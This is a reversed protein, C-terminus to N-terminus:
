TDRILLGIQKLYMRVMQGILGLPLSSSSRGIPPLVGKVGKVQGRENALINWTQTVQRVVGGGGGRGGGGGGVEGRRM